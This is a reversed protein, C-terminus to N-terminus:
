NILPPGKFHPTVDALGREQRPGHGQSNPPPPVDRPHGTTFGNNGRLPVEPTPPLPSTDVTPSQGGRGLTLRRCGRNSHALCPAVNGEVPQGQHWRGLIAQVLPQRGLLLLLSLFTLPKSCTVPWALTQAHTGVQAATQSQVRDNACPGSRNQAVRTPSMSRCCPNWLCTPQPVSTDHPWERPTFAQVFVERMGREM